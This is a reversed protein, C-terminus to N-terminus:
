RFLYKEPTSFQVMVADEKKGVINMVCQEGNPRTYRLAAHGYSNYSIGYGFPLKIVAFPMVLIYELDPPRDCGLAHDM